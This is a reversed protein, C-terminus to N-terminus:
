FEELLEKLKKMEGKRSNRDILHVKGNTDMAFLQFYGRNQFGAYDKKNQIKAMNPSDMFHDVSLGDQEMLEITTTSIPLWFLKHIVKLTNGSKQLHKEYFFFGILTLPIGFITLQVARGILINLIDGTSILKHIPHQIALYMFIIVVLIAALYGWFIMPLGYSKLILNKNEAIEVRDDTPDQEVPLQYLLGM